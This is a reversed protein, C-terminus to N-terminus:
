EEKEGEKLLWNKNRYPTFNSLTKCYGSLLPVLHAMPLICSKLALFLVFPKVLCGGLAEQHGEVLTHTHTHTHTYFRDDIPSVCGGM